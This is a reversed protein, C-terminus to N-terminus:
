SNDPDLLALGLIQRRFEAHESLNGLKTLKDAPIESGPMHIVSFQGKQITDRTFWQRIEIHRVGKAMPGDGNVFNVLAENDSYISGKTTFDPLLEQLINRIRIVSKLITTMGDLEAEFSSLCTSGSTSAKAHVAGSNLGLAIMKGTISRRRPGTALSADTNALISVPTTGFLFHLNIVV